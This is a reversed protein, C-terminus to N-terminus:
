KKTVCAHYRAKEHRYLSWCFNLPRLPHKHGSKLVGLYILKVTSKIQIQPKESYCSLHMEMKRPIVSGSIVAKYAHVSRTLFGRGKLSAKFTYCVRFDICANCFISQSDQAFLAAKVELYQRLLKEIAPPILSEKQYGRFRSLLAHNQSYYSIILNVQYM